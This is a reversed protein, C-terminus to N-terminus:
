QVGPEPPVEVGERVLVKTLQEVRDLVVTLRDNVLVHVEDISKTQAKQERKLNSLQVIATVIAGILLAIGAFFAAVVEADM